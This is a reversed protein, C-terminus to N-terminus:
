TMPFNSRRILMPRRLFLCLGGPRSATKIIPERTLPEGAVRREPNLSAARAKAAKRNKKTAAAKDPVGRKRKGAASKKAAM